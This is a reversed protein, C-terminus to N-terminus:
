HIFHWLLVLFLKKSLMLPDDNGYYIILVCSLRLFMFLTETSSIREDFNVLHISHSYRYREIRFRHHLMIFARERRPKPPPTTYDDM